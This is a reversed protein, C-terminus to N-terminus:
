SCKGPYYPARSWRVQAKLEARVAALVQEFRGDAAAAELRPFQTRAIEEAEERSRLQVVLRQKAGWRRLTFVRWACKQKIFTVGSVTSKGGRESIELTGTGEQSYGPM